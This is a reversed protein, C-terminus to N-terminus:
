LQIIKAGQAMFISIQVFTYVGAMSKSNYREEFLDGLSLLRLRRYWPMIIWYVPTAFLMQLASWIGSAGNTATTSTVMVADDSSTAQGFAAFMQVIKGFRRGALFYDEQNGIRRMAWFGISIIILFYIAIVILDLVTLGFM